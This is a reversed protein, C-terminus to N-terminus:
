KMKLTIHKRYDKFVTMHWNIYHIVCIVGVKLGVKDLEPYSLTINRGCAAAANPPWWCTRAEHCELQSTTWCLDWSLLLQRNLNFSDVYQQVSTRTTDYQMYRATKSNTMKDKYYISLTYLQRSLIRPININIINLETSCKFNFTIESLKIKRCETKQLICYIFKM